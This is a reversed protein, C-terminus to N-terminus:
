DIYYAKIDAIKVEGCKEEVEIWLRDTQIAPFHVIAKHGIQDGRHVCIPMKYAAVRAYLRYSVVAEGKTLDESIVATNVLCGGRETTPKGVYSITMGDRTFELPHDYRRSIEAGLEALRKADSENILGHRNPGVNLLFNCGRGVSYEYMGVLEDLSKLTDENDECDFWTSRIKCDCEAPMFRPAFRDMDTETATAFCPSPAVGDENLVWRVDPDWMNFILIDPQLSRITNIIRVRDYKHDGSGCADFWLYDIKGYGTLLETIQGVFYDDYEKASSFDIAGGWQAPSYYLGVKMDGKRCADVFERVIDGKGDKYPSSAVSYDSYVTPWNAFGDHHKCTLIAYRAGASKAAAIWSDCDLSEPNFTEVPMPIGDWDKSGKFFARIGFHFFVGFEWNLFQLQTQKPQIM